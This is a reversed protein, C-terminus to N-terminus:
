SSTITMTVELLLEVNRLTAARDRVGTGSGVDDGIRAAKGGPSGACRQRGGVQTALSAADDAYDGLEAAGETQLRGSTDWLAVAERKFEDTLRRKTTSSTPFPGPLGGSACM